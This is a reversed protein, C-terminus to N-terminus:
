HALAAIEARLKAEPAPNEALSYFTWTLATATTEHASILLSILEERIADIQPHDTSFVLMSLLDGRPSDSTTADRIMDEILTDLTKIASGIQRDDRTRIWLPLSLLSNFRKSA